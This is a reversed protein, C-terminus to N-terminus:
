LNKGHKRDEQRLNKKKNECKGSERQLKDDSTDRGVEQTGVMKSLSQMVTQIETDLLDKIIRFREEQEGISIKTYYTVELRDCPGEAHSDPLKKGQASCSTPKM